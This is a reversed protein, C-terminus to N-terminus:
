PVVGEGLAEPHCIDIGQEWKSCIDCAGAAGVSLSSAAVNGRGMNGGEGVSSARRELSESKASSHTM